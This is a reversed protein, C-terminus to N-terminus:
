YRRALFVWSTFLTSIMLATLLTIADSATLYIINFELLSNLAFSYFLFALFSFFMGKQRILQMREDKQAFQPYLYSLSFAMISMSLIMYTESLPASNDMFAALLLFGGM